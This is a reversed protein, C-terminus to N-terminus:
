MNHNPSLVVNFTLSDLYNSTAISQSKRVKSVKLGLTFGPQQTPFNTGFAGTSSSSMPFTYKVRKLKTTAEITEKPFIGPKAFWIFGLPASEPMQTHVFEFLLYIAFCLTLMLKRLIGTMKTISTSTPKM